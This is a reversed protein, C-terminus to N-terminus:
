FEKVKKSNSSSPKKENKDDDKIDLKNKLKSTNNSVKSFKASKSDNQLTKKSDAM